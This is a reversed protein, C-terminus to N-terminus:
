HYLLDEMMKTSPDHVKREAAAWDEDWVQQAMGRKIDQRLYERLQEAESEPCTLMRRIMERRVARGIKFRAERLSDALPALLYYGGLREPPYPGVYENLVWQLRQLLRVVQGFDSKARAKNMVEDFGSTIDAFAKMQEDEPVRPWCYKSKAM